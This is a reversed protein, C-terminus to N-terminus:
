TLKCGSLIEGGGLFFFNSRRGQRKAYGRASTPRFWPLRYLHIPRYAEMRLYVFSSLRVYAFLHVDHPQGHQGYWRRAFVSSADYRNSRRRSSRLEYRLSNVAASQKFSSDIYALVIDGKRRWTRKSVLQCICSECFQDLAFFLRFSFLFQWFMIFRVTCFQM